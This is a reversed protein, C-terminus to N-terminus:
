KPSRRSVRPLEALLANLAAHQVPKVLHGDFGAEASRRRDEAQGWGTLAVIGISEGGPQQRILRCVEYGSLNPLGIDLLIVDPRYSKVADLAQQGDFVTQAAHGGLRLLMALTTAADRNDDVVLIRRAATAVPPLQAPITVAAPEDLLPLRVTFRSGGGKGESQAAVTGGHLEVVQKVLTLGIGLGGHSREITSDVQSFLEFIRSLQDIPIGPGNDEVEVLVHRSEIRAALSIRGGAQTFKCANNLLNSFVQSLRVPDGDVPLPDEPLSVVLEHGAIAALPRCTELSHYLISTLDVRNRRLELKGRSIRSVDLLDDILRVMHSLQRDMTLQAAEATEADIEPSRLIELASRIPALPNRLEHALTALFEDKRRDAERLERAAQRQPTVDHFVLIVGLLGGREDRIPAASDEIPREHGHRDILVTHNALGVITGRRIVEAVPNEVPRRTQENLIHFIDTLPRGIAESESWGLYNEAVPNLFVVRGEGDTAIVADGISALTVQLWEKQSRLEAESQRRRVIEQQLRAIQENLAVFHGITSERPLLRVLVVPEAEGQRPLVVAGEARCGVPEGDASSLELAGLVMSRSRSCKRLYEAVADPSDTVVSTLPAGHIRSPSIRLRSGAARNAALITGNGLVLLLPEPLVEAFELFHQPTM